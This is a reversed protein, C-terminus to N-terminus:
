TCAIRTMEFSVGRRHSPGSVPGRGPAQCGHSATASAPASDLHPVASRALCPAGRASKTRRDPISRLDATRAPRPTPRRATRSPVTTAVAASRAPASRAHRRDIRRGAAHRRRRHGNRGQRRGLTAAAVGPVQFTTDSDVHITVTTRDRRTITITDATTATVSGRVHPLRVNVSTATLSGDAAKEGTAVIVTGVTVDARTGATKGARYTTGSTTSITQSTGDRLTITITDAGVATM